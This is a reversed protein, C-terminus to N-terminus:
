ESVQAHDVQQTEPPTNSAPPPTFRKLFFNQALMFLLVAGALWVGPCVRCWGGSTSCTM